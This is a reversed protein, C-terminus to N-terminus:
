GRPGRERRLFQGPTMGTVSRFDRTLHAQDAYGLEAAVDALTAHGGDGAAHAAERLRAVAEHLRRRRVVWTAGLGVRDRFLRQLSRESLGTRATLDEIRRVHPTAEIWEVVDNVLEGEPDVPLLPELATRAAEVAAAQAGADRPDDVLLRRVTATFAAGREGLVESLDATRDRWRSMPEGALLRGSAPQMALGFAWGEGTLTTRSLGSEVGYFRAYEWTVVILPVPYRLVKQVVGQGAPVSWVPIWFWRVLGAVSAPPPLRAMTHSTDAPDRLHATRIPGLREGDPRDTKM